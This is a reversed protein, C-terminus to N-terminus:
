ECSGPCPPGQIECTEYACTQTGKKDECEYECCCCDEGIPDAATRKCDGKKLVPLCEEECDIGVLARAPLVRGVTLLGIAGAFARRSMRGVRGPETGPPAAMTQLMREFGSM